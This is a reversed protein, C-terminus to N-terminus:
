TLLALNQVALAYHQEYKVRDNRWYPLAKLLEKRELAAAVKIYVSQATQKSARSVGKSSIIEELAAVLKQTYREWHLSLCERFRVSSSPQSLLDDIYAIIKDLSVNKRSTIRHILLKLYWVPDPIELFIEYTMQVYSEIQNDRLLGFETTDFIRTLLRKILSQTWNEKLEEFSVSRVISILDALKLQQNANSRGFNCNLLLGFIRANEAATRSQIFDALAERFMQFFDPPCNKMKCLKQIQDVSEIEIREYNGPNVYNSSHGADEDPSDHIDDIEDDFSDHRERGPDVAQVDGIYPAGSNEMVHSKGMEDKWIDLQKELKEKRDTMVKLEQSWFENETEMKKNQDEATRLRNTLDKVLDKLRDVEQQKKKLQATAVRGPSNPKEEDKSKLQEELFHNLDQLTQNQDELDRIRTQLTSEREKFEEKEKEFQARQERLESDKKKLDETQKQDDGNSKKLRSITAERVAALNLCANLAEHINQIALEEYAEWDDEVEM